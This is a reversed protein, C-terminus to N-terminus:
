RLLGALDATALENKPVFTVAGAAAPARSSLDIVASSTLLIRATIGAEDLAELVWFGDRDPLNVDLLIASPRLSLAADVASAADASEGVVDYGRSRLLLVALARFEADDDVILVSTQMEIV